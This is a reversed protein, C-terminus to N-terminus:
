GALMVGLLMAGLAAFLGLGAAAGSIARARRASAPDAARLARPGIGLAHVLAGAASLGVLILKVFLTVQWEITADAYGVAFLNWVGTAVLVVFSPWALLQFRRAVASVVDPGARRTVPVLGALVLQGGVWVAAALVHLFLRLDDLTVSLM